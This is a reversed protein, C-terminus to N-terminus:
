ITCGYAHPISYLTAHYLKVGKRLEIHYPNGEWKGLMGNFLPAHQSLLTHLKEKQDNTLHANADAVERLDALAYKVELIKSMRETDDTIKATNNLFYPTEQNCDPPKM